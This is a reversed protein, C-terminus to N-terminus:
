QPTPTLFFDLASRASMQEALKKSGGKGAGVPVGNVQVEVTFVPSHDPGSEDVVVYRPIGMRRAQAYELLRSKYNEDTKGITGEFEKLLQDSIFIRAASYGGDLYIAAIFAEMADVLISNSGELVAQHASPSLLLFDELNLKRALASLASRNVLRSRIKSLEGEEARPYEHYLHEGVVLNLVSDGLFEMRENSQFTGPPCLQLYSRHVLAQLFYEENRARYGTRRCFEEADFTAFASLAIREEQQPAALPATITSKKPRRLQLLTKLIRFM